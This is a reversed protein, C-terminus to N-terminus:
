NQHLVRGAVEMWNLAIQLRCLGILFHTFLTASPNCVHDNRRNGFALSANTLIFDFAWLTHILLIPWYYVDFDKGVGLISNQYLKILNRISKMASWFAICIGSSVFLKWSLKQEM